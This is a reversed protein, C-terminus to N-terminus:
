GSAPINSPLLGWGVADKLEQELPPTKTVIHTHKRTSIPGMLVMKGLEFYTFVVKATILQRPM